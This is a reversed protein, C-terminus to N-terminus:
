DVVDLATPPITRSGHGTFVAAPVSFALVFFSLRVSGVIYTRNSGSSLM